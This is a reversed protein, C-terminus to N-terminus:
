WVRCCTVARVEEVGTELLAEAAASLTAGTTLVDDILLVKAYFPAKEGVIAFSARRNRQREKRGLGRQDKSQRVSRLSSILPLGTRQACLRAIREMHDFDRRLVAEPSAPVYALADAWRVWDERAFGGKERKSSKWLRAIDEEVDRAIAWGRMEACLLSALVTELRLEDEDKYARVLRRAGQEFSLACRARTFSFAGEAHAAARESNAPPCETCTLYGFPAGCRPCAYRPNVYPLEDACTSCLFNGPRDCVVCRTPSLTELIITALVSYIHNFDLLQPREAGNAFDRAHNYAM